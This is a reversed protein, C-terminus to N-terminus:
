STRLSIHQINISQNFFLHLMHTHSIVEWGDDDGDEPEDLWDDEEGEELEVAEVMDDDSWEGDSEFETNKDILIEKMNSLDNSAGYISSDHSSRRVLVKSYNVLESKTLTTTITSPTPTGASTDDKSAAIAGSSAIDSIASGSISKIEDLNGGNTVEM